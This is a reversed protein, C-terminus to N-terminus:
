CARCFKSFMSLTFFTVLISVTLMGSGYLFFVAGYWVTYNLRYPGRTRHIHNYTVDEFWRQSSFTYFKKLCIEGVGDM